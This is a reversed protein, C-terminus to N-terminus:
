RAVARKDTKFIPKSNKLLQEKEQKRMALIHEAREVQLRTSPFWKCYQEYKQRDYNKFFVFEEPTM